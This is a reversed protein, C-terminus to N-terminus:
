IQIKRRLIRICAFLGGHEKKLSTNNLEEAALREEELQKIKEQLGEVDKELKSKENTKQKIYDPIQSLPIDKSFQTIM